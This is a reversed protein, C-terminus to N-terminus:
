GTRRVRSKGPVKKLRREGARTLLRGRPTRGLLGLRILFPEYIEEVSQANEGLAIALTNIGVPGGSFHAALTHLLRVDMHTLGDPHVGERELASEAVGRDISPQDMVQAYDRVRRLLRLAIRPTGRAARAVAVAGEPELATNLRTAHRRIISALEDISYPTLRLQLGFRDRLPSSLLGMRTTAGILTFPAVPLDVVTSGPGDDVPIHVVFDEMASYLFEEVAMPCRHIEDIFLVDGTRLRTLHSVLDAPKELVPGSTSHVRVGLETATIRALTTKGLGPGGTLLLHDLPQRRATAAEVAVSLVEVAKTQGAFGGLDQPRHEPRQCGTGITGM